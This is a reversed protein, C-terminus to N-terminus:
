EDKVVKKENLSVIRQLEIAKKALIGSALAYAAMLLATNQRLVDTEINVREGGSAIQSFLVSFANEVEQCFLNYSTKEDSLLVQYRIGVQIETLNLVNKLISITILYALQRRHYRKKIPPPLIKLKVYNNVMASTIIKEKNNGLFLSLSKEIFVIVQEMYLEIDPLEEWRPLHFHVFDSCWLALDQNIAKNM